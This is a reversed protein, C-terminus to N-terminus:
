QHGGMRNAKKADNKEEKCLKVESSSFLKPIRVCHESLGSKCIKRGIAVAQSRSPSPSVEYYQQCVAVSVGDKGKMVEMVADVIVGEFYRLDVNKKAELSVLYYRRM